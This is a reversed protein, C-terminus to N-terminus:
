QVEELYLIGKGYDIRKIKKNKIKHSVFLNNVVVSLDQRLKTIDEKIRKKSNKSEIDVMAYDILGNNITQYFTQLKRVAEVGIEVSLESPKKLEEKINDDKVKKEKRKFFM